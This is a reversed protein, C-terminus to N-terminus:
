PICVKYEICRIKRMTLIMRSMYIVSLIHKQEGHMAAMGSSIISDYAQHSHTLIRNKIVGEIILKPDTSLEIFDIVKMITALLYNETEMMRAVNILM